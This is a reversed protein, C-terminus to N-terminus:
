QLEFTFFYENNSWSIFLEFLPRILKVIAELEFVIQFLIKPNQHSPFSINVIQQM